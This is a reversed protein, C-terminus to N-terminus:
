KRKAPLSPQRPFLPHITGGEPRYVPGPGSLSRLVAVAEIPVQLHCGHKLWSPNGQEIRTPELFLAEPSVM